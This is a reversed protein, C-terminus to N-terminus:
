GNVVREVFDKIIDRVENANPAKNGAVANIGSIIPVLASNCALMAAENRPLGLKEGARMMLNLVDQQMKKLVAIQEPSMDATEFHVPHKSFNVM